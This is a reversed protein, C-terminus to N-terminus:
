TRRRPYARVSMLRQRTLFSANHPLSTLTRVRSHTSFFVFLQPDRNQGFCWGLVSRSIILQMSSCYGASRRPSTLCGWWSDGTASKEQTTSLPLNCCGKQDNPNNPVSVSRSLCRDRTIHHIGEPLAECHASRRHRAPPNECGSVTYPLGQSGRWRRYAGAM